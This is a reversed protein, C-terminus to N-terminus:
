SSAKPREAQPEDGGVFPARLWLQTEVCGDRETIGVSMGQGPLLARVLELGTGGAGGAEFRFGPPLTGPNRMQVLVADTEGQVVVSVAPEDGSAHKVANMLLENIVLAVGAAEGEPLLYRRNADAAGHVSITRRVLGALMAAIAEVLKGLTVRGAPDSGQLGHVLAVSQVQAIALEFAPTDAAHQRAHKRLLGVVGQLHNKIRHHVERVLAARQRLSQERERAERTVRETVDETVGCIVGHGHADTMPSVRSTLWRQQGDPREIRYSETVSEGRQVRGIAAMLRPRDEPVVISRWRWPDSLVDEPKLGWLREVAPSIYDIRSFDSEGIWVVERAHEMVIRFRDSTDRLQIEIDKRVTIDEATGSIRLAGTPTRGAKVARDRVWRLTGDPRVIRYEASLTASTESAVWREFASQVAPRDVPHIADIWARPNEYLVTAPQGYLTEFAPNVYVIRDPGLEQFWVVEEVGNALQEFRQQLAMLRRRSNERESIDHVVGLTRLPVGDPSLQVRGRQYLWRTTGDPMLLRHEVPLPDGREWAAQSEVVRARDEPHVRSLLEDLTVTVRRDQIGFVSVADGSLRVVGSHLDREWVGVAGFELALRLRAESDRLADELRRQQTVDRSHVTAMRPEGDSVVVRAEFDRRHGACDVLVFEFWQEEDTAFAAMLNMEWLAIREPPIPFESLPRGLYAAASRGTIATVADNIYVCRLDADFCSIVDGIADVARQFAAPAEGRGPPEVKVAAPVAATLVVTRGRHDVGAQALTAWRERGDPGVCCWNGSLAVFEGPASTARPTPVPGSAHFRDPSLDRFEDLDCELWRLAAENADLFVRTEPDFLWMACPSTRYLPGDVM